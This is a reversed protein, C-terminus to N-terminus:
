IRTKMPKVNGREEPKERGIRMSSGLKLGLGVKEKLSM